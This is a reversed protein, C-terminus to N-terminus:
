HRGTRMWSGGRRRSSGLGGTSRRTSSSIAAVVSAISANIACTDNLKASGSLGGGWNGSGHGSGHACRRITPTTSSTTVALQCWGAWPTTRSTSDTSSIARRTRPDDRVIPELKDARVFRWEDTHAGLATPYYRRTVAVIGEVYHRILWHDTPHIADDACFASWLGEIFDDLEAGFERREGPAAMMVGFSVAVLREAVYPDNTNLSSLTLEFLARPEGRGYWYLALTAADRLDRATSTLLWKVWVANLRDEDTRKMGSNWSQTLTGLDSFHEETSNRIWEAWRLDRDAVSPLSLLDDVFEANLPHGPADRVERFRDFLDRVHIRALGGTRPQLAVRAIEAVTGADVFQGELDAADVIAEERLDGGVLEWFQMGPFRRPVLGVLAKRVDPALPHAKAHQRRLRTRLAQPVLRSLAARVRSLLSGNKDQIVGLLAATKSEAVWTAFEDRSRSTVLADAILFGAFADFLIVTRADGIADPAAGLIGEDRLARALSMTWDETDDGILERIEDFPMARRSTEWLSAAIADLAKLIDREDRRVGGRRGALREVATMRFRIFAAVLTAPVQDPEVLTSRNPNTAECFIRLFLPDRFREFPLQVSGPDIKYEEFYTAVAEKTLNRDFGQVELTAFGDPLAINAVPPRLTVILVIHQLRTLVPLLRALEEKWNAPDESESLGDIVVPLRVGARTAAADAAELLHVFSQAPAEDLRSLLENVTGRRSLPWAELYLGCPSTDSDATLAAGLHTKGANAAGVVAVARISLYRRIRSLLRTADHQRALGAQVVFACHHRQRRLERALRRGAALTLRPTWDLLALPIATALDQQTLATVIAELTGALEKLDDALLAVSERHCEEVDTAAAVLQEGSVLLDRAHTKVEPWYESDGLVRRIEHEAAVPVHVEPMWRDRITAIAQERLRHLGDPTLVLDGFYTRRLIEAEGVLHTDLDDATWLHLRMTSEIAYFWEQDTPTLPRRTWLVWDTIGPVHEETKRIADTIRTRRRHGIQDGAPLDYWRCQWGWWRGPEGLTTSSRDLRLHFEVGPQQAVYRFRGLGGFGRRIVARCLREWNTTAGGPLNAFREWALEPM